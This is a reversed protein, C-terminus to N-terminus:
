GQAGLVACFVNYPSACVHGRGDPSERPDIQNQELIGDPVPTWRQDERRLFFWTGGVNKFQTPYCDRDNCCSHQRQGDPARMEPRYWTSYFKQHLEMDQPPHGSHQALAPSSLLLLLITFIM